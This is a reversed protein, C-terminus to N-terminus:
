GTAKLIDHERFFAASLKMPYSEDASSTIVLVDIDSDDRAKDQAYSGYLYVKDASDGSLVDVIQKITQQQRSKTLQKM